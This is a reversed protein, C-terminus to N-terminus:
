QSYWLSIQLQHYQDDEPIFKTQEGGGGLSGGHGVM